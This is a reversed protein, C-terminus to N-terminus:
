HESDAHLDDQPGPHEATCHPLPDPAPQHGVPGATATRNFHNAHVRVLIDREQQDLWAQLDKPLPPAHAADSGNPAHSQPRRATPRPHLLPWQTQRPVTALSPSSMCGTM